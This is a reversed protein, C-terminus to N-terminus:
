QPLRGLPCKPFAATTAILSCGSGQSSGAPTTAIAHRCLSFTRLVPSGLRHDIAVLRIGTLALGPRRPLRVPEYYRRYRTIGTSPLPRVEPANHCPCLTQLTAMNGIVEKLSEATGCAVTGGPSPGSSRNTHRHHLGDSLRTRCIRVGPEILPRHFRPM